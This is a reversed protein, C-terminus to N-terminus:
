AAKRRDNINKMPIIKMEGTETSDKLSRWFIRRYFATNRSGGTGYKGNPLIGSRYIGEFLREQQRSM